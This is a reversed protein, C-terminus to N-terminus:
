RIHLVVPVKGWETPPKMQNTGPLLSGADAYEGSLPQFWVAKYSKPLRPATLEFPTSVAQYVIYEEGPNELCRGTSVLTDNSKLLWFRTKSFFDSFNRMFRYGPPNDEHRIIDWAAYTYYYTNSVGSM